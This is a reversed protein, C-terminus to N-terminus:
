LFNRPVAPFNLDAKTGQALSPFLASTKRKRKIVNEDTGYSLFSSVQKLVIGKQFLARTILSHRGHLFLLCGFIKKKFQASFGSYKWVWHSQCFFSYVPMVMSSIGIAQYCNFQSLHYKHWTRSSPCHSFFCQDLYTLDTGTLIWDIM